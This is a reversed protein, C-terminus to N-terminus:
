ILHQLSEEIQKSPDYNQFSSPSHVQIPHPNTFRSHPVQTKKKMENEVVITEEWQKEHKQEHVINKRVKEKKRMINKL